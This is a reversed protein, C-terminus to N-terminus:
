NNNLTDRLEKMLTKIADVLYDINEEREANKKRQREVKERKKRNKKLIRRNKIEIRENFERRKEDKEKQIRKYEKVGLRYLKNYLASGHGDSVSSFLRKILCINIGNELNFTDGDALIATEETGDKFKVRITTPASSDITIDEVEPMLPVTNYFKTMKGFNTSNFGFTIVEENGFLVTKASGNSDYLVVSGYTNGKQM